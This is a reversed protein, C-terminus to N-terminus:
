LVFEHDRSYNRAAAASRPEREDAIAKTLEAGFLFIQASCYMWMLVILAGAAGYPSGPAARGLYIRDRNESRSSYRQSLHAWSLNRGRYRHTPLVKYIAAFLLLHRAFRRIRLNVECDVTRHRWRFRGAGRTARAPAEIPAAYIQPIRYGVEV